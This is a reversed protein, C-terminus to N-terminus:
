HAEDWNKGVGIQVELPVALDGAAPMERHLLATVKAVQAERVEL